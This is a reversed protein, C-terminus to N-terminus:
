GVEGEDDPRSERGPQEIAYVRAEADAVRMRRTGWHTEEIPTVVDVAEGPQFADIDDVSFFLNFAPVSTAPVEALVVAAAGSTLRGARHGESGWREAFEFGMGRWFAVSSGWRHTEVYLHDIATIGM